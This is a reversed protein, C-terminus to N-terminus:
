VKPKFKMKYVGPTVSSPVSIAANGQADTAVQSTVWNTVPTCNSFLTAQSSCLRLDIDMLGNAFPVLAGTSNQQKVILNYTSNTGGAPLSTQNSVVTLKPMVVTARSKFIQQKRVLYVASGVGAALILFVFVSVLANGKRNKVLPSNFKLM